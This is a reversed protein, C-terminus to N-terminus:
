SFVEMALMCLAWISLIIPFVIPAFFYELFGMLRYKMMFLWVERKDIYEEDKGETIRPSRESHGSISIGFPPELNRYRQEHEKWGIAYSSLSIMEKFAM